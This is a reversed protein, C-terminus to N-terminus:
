GSIEKCIIANYHVVSTQIKKSRQSIIEECWGAVGVVRKKKLIM